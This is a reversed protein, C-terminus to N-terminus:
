VLPTAKGASGPHFDACARGDSGALTSNTDKVKALFELVKTKSAEAQAEPGWLFEYRPPDSNPVQRYELYKAQVLDKTILKRPEGFIFHTKGDYMGFVNLFEWMKEETARNGNKYIMSLLPMLIGTKPIGRGGSLKEEETIELKSVITYSQGKSDAEKVDLGFVLEICKSARKLIEPFHEKYRKNIIKLMKGKTIHEQMEYKSLLFQLLMTVRRTLPDRRSRENPYPTSSSSPPEEDQGNAGRPARRGSAGVTATTTSPARQSGQPTRSAPSSQPPGGFPPASSSPYGEEEAATAQAGQVSHIDGQAQRRKERARLKSKHGRPM